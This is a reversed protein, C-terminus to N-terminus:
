VPGGGEGALLPALEPELSQQGVYDARDLLLGAPGVAVDDALGLRELAEDAEPGELVAVLVEEVLHESLVELLEEGDDVRGGHALGALLVAPDEAARPPVGGPSGSGTLRSTPVSLWSSRPSSRYM